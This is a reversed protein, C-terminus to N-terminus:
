PVSLAITDNILSKLATELAFCRKFRFSFHDFSFSSMPFHNKKGRCCKPCPILDLGNDKLCNSCRQYINSPPIEVFKSQSLLVACFPEEISVIDGVKLARNTTVHRGYKDNKNIKLCNVVFPMKKNPPHSLKFFNWPSPTNEKGNKMDECKVERTQLIEFNKEPYNHHRALEINRLCKEYLNMQFYVASRNAYALGANESGNTAFCLSENYKTLADHFKKQSYFENGETRLKESKKDCKVDLM